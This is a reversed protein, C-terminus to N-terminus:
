YDSKCNEPVPHRALSSPPTNTAEDVVVMDCGQEYSNQSVAYSRGPEPQFSVLNYCTMKAEPTLGPSLSECCPHKTRARIFVRRDSAIPQVKRGEKVHKGWMFRPLVMLFNATREARDCSESTQLYYEVSEAGTRLHKPLLYAIQAGAAPEPAAAAPSRAPEAAQGQGAALSALGGLLLAGWSIQSM